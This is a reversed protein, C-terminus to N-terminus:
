TGLVAEKEEAEHLEDEFIDVTKGTKQNYAGWVPMGRFNYLGTVILDEGKFKIKENIKWSM